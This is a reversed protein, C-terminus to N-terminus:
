LGGPPPPPGYKGAGEPGTSIGSFTDKSGVVQFDGYLEFRIKKDTLIGVSIFPEEKYLM